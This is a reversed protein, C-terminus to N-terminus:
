SPSRRDRGGKSESKSKPWRFNMESCEPFSAGNRLISRPLESREARNGSQGFTLLNHPELLITPKTSDRTSKAQVAQPCLIACLFHFYVLCCGPVAPGPLMSPLQKTAKWKRNAMRHGCATPKCFSHNLCIIIVNDIWLNGEIQVGQKM